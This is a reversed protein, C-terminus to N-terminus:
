LNVRAEGDGSLTVSAKPEGGVTFQLTQGAHRRVYGKKVVATVGALGGRRELSDVRVGSRKAHASKVRKGGRYFVVNRTLLVSLVALALLGALVGGGLAIIAPWNLETHEEYKVTKTTVPKKESENPTTPTDPVTPTDPTDPVPPTVPTDPATPTVPTDPTTPTDPEDPTPDDPEVIPPKAYVRAFCAIM